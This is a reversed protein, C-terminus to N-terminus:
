KGVYMKFYKLLHIGPLSLLTRDYPSLYEYSVQQLDINCEPYQRM